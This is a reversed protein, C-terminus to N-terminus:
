KEEKRVTTLRKTKFCQMAGLTQHAHPTVVETWLEMTWWCPKATVKM